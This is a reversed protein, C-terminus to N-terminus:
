VGIYAINLPNEPEIVGTFPDNDGDANDHDKMVRTGSLNYIAMGEYEDSAGDTGYVLIDGMNPGPNTELQVEVLGNYYAGNLFHAYQENTIETESFQFSSLTVTHVYADYSGPPGQHSEEAEGMTFTGAPIDKFVISSHLSSLDEGQWCNSVICDVTACIDFVDVTGDGNFDCQSDDFCDDLICNVEDEIDLSDLQGDGNFDCQGWSFGMFLVLSLIPKLEIETLGM